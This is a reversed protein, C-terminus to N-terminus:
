ANIENGQAIIFIDYQCLLWQFINKFPTKTEGYKLINKIKLFIQHSGLNFSFIKLKQSLQGNKPVNLFIKNEIM